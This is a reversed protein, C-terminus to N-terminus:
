SQVEETYWCMEQVNQRGKEKTDTQSLAEEKQTEERQNVKAARLYREWGLIVWRKWGRKVSRVRQTSQWSRWWWGWGELSRSTPLCGPLSETLEGALRQQYLSRLKQLHSCRQKPSSSSAALYLSVPTASIEVQCSSPQTWSLPLTSDLQGDQAVHLNAATDLFHTRAESDAM